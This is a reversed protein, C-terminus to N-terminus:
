PLDAPPVYVHRAGRGMVLVSLEVLNDTVYAPLEGPYGRNREFLEWHMPVLLHAGIETALRAAERYDMNGVINRESERFFDRGNIPLLAIRPQLARLREVQGPYPSCDGAHYVRVGDLEVVYGLYRVLGGSLEQGFSYADIVHIGHRAPVPFIRVGAHEIPEDPQAGIIRDAPLGLEERAQDVLPRPLVLTFRSGPVEAALKLADADYHDNHEHTALVLDAAALQAVDVPAQWSREARYTLFPDCFVVAGSQGLDGCLRFGAQGLWWLELGNV